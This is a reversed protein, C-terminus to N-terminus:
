NGAHERREIGVRAEQVLVLEIVDPLVIGAFASTDACADIERGGVHRRRGHACVRWGAKGADVGAIRDRRDVRRRNNAHAQAVDRPAHAVHEAACQLDSKPAAAAAGDACDRHLPGSKRGSRGRPASAPFRSPTSGRSPM